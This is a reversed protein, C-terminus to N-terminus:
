SAGPGPSRSRGPGPPRPCRPRRVRGSGGTAGTVAVVVGVARRAQIATAMAVPAVSSARRTSARETTEGKMKWSSPPYTPTARNSAPSGGDSYLVTGGVGTAYPNNAPDETLPVIQNLVGNGAGLEPLYLAGCSSGADGSSAFFTRGEIVAQQLVKTPLVCM